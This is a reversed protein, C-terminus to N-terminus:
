SLSAALLQGLGRCCSSDGDICCTGLAELILGFFFQPRVAGATNDAQMMLRQSYCHHSRQLSKEATFGPMNRTEM